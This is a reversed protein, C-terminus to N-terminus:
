NPNFRLMLEVCQARTDVKRSQLKKIAEIDEQVKLFLPRSSAQLAPLIRTLLRLYQRDHLIVSASDLLERTLEQRQHASMKPSRLTSLVRRELSGAVLEQWQPARPDAWLDPHAKVFVEVLLEWFSEPAVIGLLHSAHGGLRSFVIGSEFFLDNLFRLEPDLLGRPTKETVLREILSSIWESHFLSLIGSEPQFSGAQYAKLENIMGQLLLSDMFDLTRDAPALKLIWQMLISSDVALDKAFAGQLTKLAVLFPEKPGTLAPLSSPDPVQTMWDVLEVVFDPNGLRERVRDWFKTGVLAEPAVGEDLFRFALEPSLRTLGNGPSILNAYERRLTEIQRLPDPDSLNWGAKWRALAQPDLEGRQEVFAILFATSALSRRSVRSRDSFLQWEPLVEAALAKLRSRHVPDTIKGEASFCLAVFLSQNRLHHGDPMHEMRSLLSYGEFLELMVKPHTEGMSLAAKAFGEWFWHNWNARSVPTGFSERVGGLDYAMRSLAEGPTSIRELSRYLSDILDV